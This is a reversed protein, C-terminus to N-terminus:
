WREVSFVLSSEEGWRFQRGGEWNNSVLYQGEKSVTRGAKSGELSFLLCQSSVHASDTATQFEVQVYITLPSVFQDDSRLSSVCAGYQNATVLFVNLWLIKVQVFSRRDIEKGM